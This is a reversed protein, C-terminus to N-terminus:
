IRSIISYQRTGEGERRFSHFRAGKDDLDCYTCNDILDFDKVGLRELEHYNVAQLDLKRTSPNILDPDQYSFTKKFDLILEESVEYCCPGICPGLAAVWEDPKQGLATIKQIFKEAIKAKTGRWGAHLAAVAQGDKRALLIPICDATVVGIPNKTKTLLGDTDGCKQNREIVEVINNGHVQKWEHRNALWSKMVPIAVPDSRTGFGHAIGPIKRLLNSEFHM